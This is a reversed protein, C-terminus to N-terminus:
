DAARLKPGAILRPCRWASSSAAPSSVPIILWANTPGVAAPGLRLRFADGRRGRARAPAVNELATMTLILHFAQFVIGIRDRCAPWRM